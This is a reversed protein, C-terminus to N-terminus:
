REQQLELTHLQEIVKVTGLAQDLAFPIYLDPNRPLEQGAALLGQKITYSNFLSKCAGLVLANEHYQELLKERELEKAYPLVDLALEMHEKLYHNLAAMHTIIRGPVMPSKFDKAMIVVLLNQSSKPVLRIFKEGPKPYKKFHVELIRARKYDNNILERFLQNHSSPPYFLVSGEEKENKKLRELPLEVKTSWVESSINYGERLTASNEAMVKNVFQTGFAQVSIGKAYLHKFLSPVNKEAALSFVSALPLHAQLILTSISLTLLFIKM